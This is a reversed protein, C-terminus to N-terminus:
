GGRTGSRNRERVRGSGDRSVRIVLLGSADALDRPLCVLLRNVSLRLKLLGVADALDRLVRVCLRNAFTGGRLGSWDDVMRRRTIIAEEVQTQSGGEVLSM